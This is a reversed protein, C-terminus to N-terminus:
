SKIKGPVGYVVQNDEIDKTIVAGAGIKVNEGIKVNPLITANAGVLTGNGIKVGGCLVAGPAIHTFNGIYCDHEVIAGTNIISHLGVHSGRNIVSGSMIQAGLSIKVQIDIISSKDIAISIEHKIKASLKKRVTNNGIAILLKADKFVSGNYAPFINVPDDFQIKKDTDFIAVLKLGMSEIVSALSKAHGGGGLFVIESKKMGVLKMNLVQRFVM